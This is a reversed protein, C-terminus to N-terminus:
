VRKRAKSIASRSVGFHRAAAENGYEDAYKVMAQARESDAKRGLGDKSKTQAPKKERRASLFGQLWKLLWNIKHPIQQAPNEVPRLEVKWLDETAELWSQRRGPVVDVDGPHRAGIREVIQPRTHADNNDLLSEEVARRVAQGALLDPLDCQLSLGAPTWRKRNSFAAQFQRLASEYDSESLPPQAGM